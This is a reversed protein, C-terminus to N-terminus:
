QQKLKKGWEYIKIQAEQMKKLDNRKTIRTLIIHEEM